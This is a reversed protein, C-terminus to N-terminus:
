RHGKACPRKPLYAQSLDSFDLGGGQARGFTHYAKRGTTSLRDKVPQNLSFLSFTLYYTSM